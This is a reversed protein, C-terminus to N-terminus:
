QVEAFLEGSPSSSVLMPGKRPPSGGAGDDIRWLRREEETLPAYEECKSIEKLKSRDRLEKVRAVSFWSAVNDIM